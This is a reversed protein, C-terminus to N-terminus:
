NWPLEEGHWDHVYAEKVNDSTTVTGKSLVIMPVRKGLLIKGMVNADAYGSASIPLSYTILVPWGGHLLSTAAGQDLDSAVVWVDKRAAEMVASAAGTYQHALMIFLHINPHQKLAAAAAAHADTDELVPKIEVINIKCIEQVKPDDLGQKFGIQRSVSFWSPHAEILWVANVKSYGKSRLLKATPM